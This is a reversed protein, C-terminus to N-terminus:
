CTSVRRDMRSMDARMSRILRCTHTISLLWGPVVQPIEKATVQNGQSSDVVTVPEPISRRVPSLGDWGTRLPSSATDQWVALVRCVPSLFFGPPVTLPHKNMPIAVDHSTVDASPDHLSDLFGVSLSISLIVSNCSTLARDAEHTYLQWTARGSMRDTANQLYM